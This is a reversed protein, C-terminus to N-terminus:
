DDDEPPPMPKGTVPSEFPIFAGRSPAVPQAGELRALKERCMQLGKQLEKLSEEVQKFQADHVTKRENDGAKNRETEQQLKGVDDRIAKVDTATALLREKILELGAIEKKIGELATLREKLVELAAADKKVADATGAFDKKVGDLTAMADKKMGDLAAGNASIREKLAELEVKLGDLSRIREYQSTTRSNFEDKKVLEARAERERNLETRLESISSSMGNYLTISILAVISLITGGFVRWFLSVKEDSTSESKGPASSEAASRATEASMVSNGGMEREDDQDFRKNLVADM